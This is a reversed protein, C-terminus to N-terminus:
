TFEATFAENINMSSVKKLMFSPTFGAFGGGDDLFNCLKEADEEFWFEAMVQASTEEYVLWVLNDSDDFEPYYTYLRKIM